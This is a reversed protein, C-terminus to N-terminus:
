QSLSQNISSDISAVAAVPILDGASIKSIVLAGLIQAKTSIYNKSSDPLLVSVKQIDTDSLFSGPSLNSGAAWVQVTRNAEKSILGASLLAILLVSIGLVLRSNRVVEFKENLM